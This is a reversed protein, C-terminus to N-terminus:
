HMWKSHSTYAVGAFVWDIRDDAQYYLFGRQQGYIAGYGQNNWVLWVVPLDNMVATAVASAHM